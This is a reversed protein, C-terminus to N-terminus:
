DLFSASLGGIVVNVPPDTLDALQQGFVVSREGPCHGALFLEFGQELVGEVAVVLEVEDVEVVGPVGGGVEVGFEDCFMGVFYEPRGLVEEVM